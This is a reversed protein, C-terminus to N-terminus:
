RALAYKTPNEAFAMYIYTGGSANSEASNSKMKFGNSLFDIQANATREAESSEAHLLAGVQNYSSRASDFMNWWNASDTRKCMVFKPRFGLHVFTGDTSGNGTYSGFASYGSVPAFCYAVYNSSSQNVGVNSGLSFTSSTPSTNNWATSDTVSGDTLDLYLKNTNGINSNYCVWNYANVRSKVIIMKPAVGLGHGVTANSGTGTYTVVSFGATPNASVTSTISGATNSSGASNGAKWNWAVYTYASNYATFGDSDFSYVGPDTTEANTLNSYLSKEVGRVADFLQNNETVSRSKYWVLDPQFGVGTRSASAGTGTYTIANFHKNGAKISPEPLNFTNLAVFGTPPTYSFPRQGFNIVMTLTAGGGGDGISPYYTGAALGTYAIGQSTNNKYFTLTRADADFTVGIVDNTTFTAGYSTGSANNYVNGDAGYYGWGNATYGTYYGIGTSVSSNDTTNSIGIAANCPNASSATVTVEWYFKGTTMAMTAAIGTRTGSSGYAINLNGNTITGDLPTTLPNLVPYNATTADTLTPVDTMSDYTTGATLSINNVTWDNSGAADYGLAATSSNDKFDLYFGNTGYTGAFKKPKWVGTIPDTEGFLSPTLAQGDIFNVETLYLDSYVQGAFQNGAGLLHNNTSNYYLDQNLSPYSSSSFATVQVGNIYFKLRNSSTAQTTDCAVIIHYYASPDRFVQTTTLASASGSVVTELGFTDDGNFRMENKNSNSGASCSFFLQDAGLKGRKLWTSYTWTKRNGASAPTRNLYATASSRFRLSRSINYGEDGQLLNNAIISM